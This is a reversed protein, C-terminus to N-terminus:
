SHNSPNAVNRRVAALCIVYNVRTDTREGHREIVTLM